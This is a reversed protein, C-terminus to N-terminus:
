LFWYGCSQCCVNGLLLCYDVSCCNRYQVVEDVLSCRPLCQQFLICKRMVRWSCWKFVFDYLMSLLLDKCNLFIGPFAKYTWSYCICSNKEGGVSYKNHFKQRCKSLWGILMRFICNASGSLQCTVFTFYLVSIFLSGRHMIVGTNCPLRPKCFLWNVICPYTPGICSVARDCM